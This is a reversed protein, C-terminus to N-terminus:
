FVSLFLPTSPAGSASIRAKLRSKRKYVVDISEGVLLAISRPSFGCGLFVMLRYDDPKLGPMQARLEGLMGDYSGDVCAEMEKFVGADARLDNIQAKVKAVIANREAKTGMTEYYTECLEDLCAFRGDLAKAIGRRLGSAEAVLAEARADRERIRRRQWAVTVAAVVLVLLVLVGYLRRGAQAKYLMFEKEKQLYLATALRDNSGSGAQMLAKLGSAHHHLERQGHRGYYAIAIDVITDNPAALRNAVMAESYLLAWRALTASDAFAAVDMSNLREMAATPDSGMLAEAEDLGRADPNSLSCGALLLLVAVYLLSRM